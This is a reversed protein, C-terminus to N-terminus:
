AASTKLLASTPTAAEWKEWSTSIWAAGSQSHGVNTAFSTASPQLALAPGASIPVGRTAARFISNFEVIEHINLKRRRTGTRGALPM